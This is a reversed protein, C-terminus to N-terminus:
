VKAIIELNPKIITMVRSISRLSRPLETRGAYGPNYTAFCGFTPNIKFPVGLLKMEHQNLILAERVEEMYMGFFRLTEIAIRNFENFKLWSGEACAGRLMKALFNADMQDSCALQMFHRRAIVAMDNLMGVKGVGALGQISGIMNQSLATAVTLHLRESLPTIALRTEPGMYEFDCPM